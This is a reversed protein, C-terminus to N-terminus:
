PREKKTTGELMDWALLGAGLCGSLDGLAAPVVEPLVQVTVRNRVSARLPAFLTEGARALGGGVVFLEPDLLAACMVIGDALADVADGWIRAATLDGEEVGAAVDAASVGALGTAAGYALAVAAASGVTELCGRAGCGCPAGGPRVVLHGMEGARGHAGVEMRGMLGVAAAVGTGVALFVFRDRGRAAGIRGEALGGARLDHGVAVPLGLRQEVLEGVAVDRWGINASSVAVRREEDVVGPLAVGAAVAPEGLRAAAEEALQAAFDALANVVAVAGWERGTARRASCVVAGDRGVVAGKMSTGGVDLALVHAM